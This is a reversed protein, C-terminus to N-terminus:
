PRAKLLARLDTAPDALAARDLARASQILRMGARVANPEDISAVGVLRAGEMEFVIPGKGGGREVSDGTARGAMEVHHPGQDSWFWDVTPAPAPLGLMARAANAGQTEAARWHQHRRRGGPTPLAAVDGAAFVGPASTRHDPTVHVGDAVELGAERCLIDDPAMGVGVVVAQAAIIEGDRLEV